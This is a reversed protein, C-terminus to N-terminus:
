IYARSIEICYRAVLQRIWIRVVPWSYWFGGLQERFKVYEYALQPDTYKILIHDARIHTDELDHEKEYYKLLDEFELKMQEIEEKTLAM